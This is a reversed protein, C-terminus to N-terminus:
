RRFREPPIAGKRKVKVWDSSRVDPRYTSNVRKAVLGEELTLLIVTKSPAIEGKLMLQWSGLMLEGSACVPVGGLPHRLGTM